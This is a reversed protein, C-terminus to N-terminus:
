MCLHRYYHILQSRHGRNHVILHPSHLCISFSPLSSGHIMFWLDMFWSGHVMLWIGHGTLLETGPISEIMITMFSHGARGHIMHGFWQGHVMWWSGSITFWAAQRGWRIFDGTNFKSSNRLHLLVLAHNHTHLLGAAEGETEAWDAALRLRGMAALLGPSGERGCGAVLVRPM